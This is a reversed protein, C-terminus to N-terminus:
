AQVEGPPRRNRSIVQRHPESALLVAGPADTINDTRMWKMVARVRRLRVLFGLQPSRADQPHSHEPPHALLKQREDCARVWWGLSEPDLVRAPADTLVSAVEAAIFSVERVRLEAVAADVGGLLRAAEDLIDSRCRQGAQAPNFCQPLKNPQVDISGRAGRKRWYPALRNLTLALGYATEHHATPVGTTATADAAGWARLLDRVPRYFAGAMGPSHDQTTPPLGLRDHLLHLFLLCLATWPGEPRALLEDMAQPPVVTVTAQGDSDGPGMEFPFNVADFALRDEFPTDRLKNPTSRNAEHQRKDMEFLEDFLLDRSGALAALARYLEVTPMDSAAAIPYRSLWETAALTFHPTKHIGPNNIARALAKVGAMARAEPDLAPFWPAGRDWLPRPVLPGAPLPLSHHTALVAVLNQLAPHEPM